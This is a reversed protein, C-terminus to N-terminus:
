FKYNVSAAVAESDFFQGELNIWCKGSLPIDWGAVLGIGKTLDSMVRKRSGGVTHIYDIRSWRTGIYPCTKLINRSVLFSYQWDDLIARNKVNGLHTSKPHVSIHQFGFVMRTNNKDYLKLRYGYGGAFKSEYDVEDSTMPRQQVNGAGGKLDISLWDFVGYSLLLFHQLGRIKGRSEALSRKFISYTQVGSHFENKKPLNTGYCPAAYSVSVHCVAAVVILLVIRRM